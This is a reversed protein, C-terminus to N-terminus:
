RAARSEPPTQSTGFVYSAAQRWIKSWPRRGFTDGASGSDWVSTCSNVVSWASRGVFASSSARLQRSRGV